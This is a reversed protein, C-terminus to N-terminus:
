QKEKRAVFRARFSHCNYPGITRFFKSHIFEGILWLVLLLPKVAYQVIFGISLPLPEIKTTFKPQLEIKSPYLIQQLNTNIDELTTLKQVDHSGRSSVMSM